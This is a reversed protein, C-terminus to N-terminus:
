YSGCLANESPGGHGWVETTMRRLRSRTEGLRSYPATCIDAARIASILLVQVKLRRLHVSERHKAPTAPSAVVKHQRLPQKAAEAM